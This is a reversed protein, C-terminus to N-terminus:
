KFTRKSNVVSLALDSLRPENITSRLYSKVRKFTSFARECQATNAAITLAIRVLKM